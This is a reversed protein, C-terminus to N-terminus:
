RTTPVNASASPTPFRSFVTFFTFFISPTWLGGRTIKPTWPYFFTLFWQVLTNEPFNKQSFKLEGSHQPCTIKESFFVSVSFNTVIFHKHSDPFIQSSTKPGRLGLVNQQGGRVARHGLDLQGVKTERPAHVRLRLHLSEAAGHVVYRGFNHPQSLLRSRPPFISKKVRLFWPLNSYVSFISQQLKPTIRYMQHTKPAPWYPTRRAVAPLNQTRDPSKNTIYRRPFQQVYCLCVCAMLLSLGAEFQAFKMNRTWYSRSIRGHSSPTKYPFAQLSSVYPMSPIPGLLAATDRIYSNWTWMTM